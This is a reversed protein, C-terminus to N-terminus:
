GAVQEFGHNGFDLLGHEFGHQTMTVVVLGSRGGAEADIAACQALFEPLVMDLVLLRNNNVRRFVNPYLAAKEL